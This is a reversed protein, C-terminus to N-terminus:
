TLVSIFLLPQIIDTKADDYRFVFLIFLMLDKMVATNARRMAVLQLACFLCSTLDDFLFLMLLDMTM